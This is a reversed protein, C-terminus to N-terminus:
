IKPTRSFLYGWPTMVANFAERNTENKRLCSFWGSRAKSRCQSTNVASQLAAMINKPLRRGKNFLVVRTVDPRLRFQDSLIEPSRDRSGDNVFIVEYSIGLKDLAPYLRGFLHALGAEENYIPIVVSLEPKM